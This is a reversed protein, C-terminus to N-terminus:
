EKAGAAKLIKIIETHGGDKAYDLATYEDNDKANVDAGAAILAKVKEIDGDIAAAILEQDLDSTAQVTTAMIGLFLM